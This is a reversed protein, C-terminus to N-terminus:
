GNDKIDQRIKLLNYWFTEPNYPILSILDGKKSRNIDFKLVCFLTLQSFYNEQWYDVEGNKDFTGKNGDPFIVYYGEVELLAIQIRFDMLECANVNGILTNDPSYLNLREEPYYQLELKDNDM